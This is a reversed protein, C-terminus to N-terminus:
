WQAIDEGRQKKEKEERVEGEEKKVQEGRERLNPESCLDPQSQVWSERAKTERTSTNCDCVM